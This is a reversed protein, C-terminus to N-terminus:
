INCKTDRENIQTMSYSFPNLRRDVYKVPEKITKVPLITAMPESEGRPRQATLLQKVMGVTHPRTDAGVTSAHPRKSVPASSVVITDDSKVPSLAKSFTSPMDLVIKKQLTKTNTLTQMKSFINRIQM